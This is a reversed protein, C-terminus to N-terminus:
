RRPCTHQHRHVDHHHQQVDASPDDLLVFRPVRVQATACRASDLSPAGPRADRARRERVVCARDKAFHSAHARCRVHSRGARPELARQARRPRHHSPATAVVDGPQRRTSRARPPGGAICASLAHSAAPAGCVACLARKRVEGALEQQKAKEIQRAHMM